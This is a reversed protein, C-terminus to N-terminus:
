LFGRTPRPIPEGARIRRTAWLAAFPIGVWQLAPSLGLGLGPILPMLESYTWSRRVTTNLWESFGTYVLGVMLVLVAVRRFALTPWGPHGVLVVAFAWAALAILVDGATCHAVAVFQDRLTGDRWVTYLPLQLTEWAGNGITSVILYRRLAPLWSQDPSM